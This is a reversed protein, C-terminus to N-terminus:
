WNSCENKNMRGPTRRLRYKSVTKEHIKKLVEYVKHAKSERLEM